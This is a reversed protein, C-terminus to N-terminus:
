HSFGSYIVMAINVLPYFRHLVELIQRMHIKEPGSDEFHLGDTGSGTLNGEVYRDVKM